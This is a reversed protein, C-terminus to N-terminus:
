DPGVEISHGMEQLKLLFVDLTRVHIDPIYVEGETVAAALLLAGAELRDAIVAHTVPRLTEVGQIEITAPAKIEICAGMKQLVTILDLVEPELAANIIRVIGRTLTAAMMI